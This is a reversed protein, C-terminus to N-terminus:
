DEEQIDKDTYGLQERVMGRIETKSPKKGVYFLGIYIPEIFGCEYSKIKKGVDKGSNLTEELLGIDHYDQFMRVFPFELVFKETM